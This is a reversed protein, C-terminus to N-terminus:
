VCTSEEKGGDACAEGGRRTREARPGRFTVTHEGGDTPCVGNVGMRVLMRLLDRARRESLLVPEAETDSTVRAAYIRLCVYAPTRLSHGSQGEGRAVAWGAGIM